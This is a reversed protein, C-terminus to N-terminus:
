VYLEIYGKRSRTNYYARFRLNTLTSRPDGISVRKVLGQINFSQGSGDEHEISCIRDIECSALDNTTKADTLPKNRIMFSITVKTSDDYAYKFADVLKDLNPGNEINFSNSHSKIDM